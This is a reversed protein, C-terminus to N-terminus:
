RGGVRDTGSSRAQEDLDYRHVLHDTTGPTVCWPTGTVERGHLYRPTVIVREAAVRDRNYALVARYFGIAAPEFGTHVMEIHGIGAAAMESLRTLTDRFCFTETEALTRDSVSVLRNRFWYGSVDADVGMHRVSMLGLRISRRDVADLGTGGGSGIPFPTGESSDVHVMRLWGAPVAPDQLERLVEVIVDHPAAMGVPVVGGRRLADVIQRRLAVAQQRRREANRGHEQAFPIENHRHLEEVVTAISDQSAAVPGALDEGPRPVEGLRVIASTPVPQVSIVLGAHTRRAEQLFRTFPHREGMGSVTREWDQAVAAAEAPPTITDSVGLVSCLDGADIAVSPWGERDALARALREVTGAAVRYRRQDDGTAEDADIRRRMAQMIEVADRFGHPDAGHAGPWAEAGVATIIAIM